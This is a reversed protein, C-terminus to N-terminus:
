LRGQMPFPALFNDKASMIAVNALLALVLVSRLSTLALSVRCIALHSLSLETRNKLLPHPAAQSRGQMAYAFYTDYSVLRGSREHEFTTRKRRSGIRGLNLLYGLSLKQLDRPIIMAILIM